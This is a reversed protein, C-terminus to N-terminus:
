RWLARMWAPWLGFLLFAGQLVQGPQWATTLDSVQLHWPSGAQQNGWAAQTAFVADTFGAGTVLGPWKPSPATRAQREFAWGLAGRLTSGKWAPLAGARHAHLTWAIRTVLLKGDPSSM